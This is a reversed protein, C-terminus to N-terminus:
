TNTLVHLDDGRSSRCSFCVGGLLVLAKLFAAIQLKCKCDSYTVTLSEIKLRFVAIQGEPATLTGWGAGIRGQAERRGADSGVSGLAHFPEPIGLSSNNLAWHCLFYECWTTDFMQVHANYNITQDSRKELNRCVALWSFGTLWILPILPILETLSEILVLASSPQVFLWQWCRGQPTCPSRLDFSLM